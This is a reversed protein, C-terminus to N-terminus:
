NREEEYVLPTENTLFDRTLQLSHVFLQKEFQLSYPNAFGHKASFTKISINENNSEIIKQTLGQVNFSKEIDSFFLLTPCKPIINMHDRIRSGYYGVIGNIIVDESCLWAMTAGVSYGLLYVKEYHIKLDEVYRKIRLAGKEVGINLMFNEYAQEEEEYSYVQDKGLLNPCRVDIGWETIIDTMYKMHENVGYIEHILVVVCKSKRLHIM